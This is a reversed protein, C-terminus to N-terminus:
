RRASHSHTGVATGEESQLPVRLTVTTGFGPTSAISLTGGARQARERMIELGYHGGSARDLLAFGRGDDAVTVTLWGDAAACAVTVRRAQAHKYVNALAEQVIRIVQVEAAPPVPPEADPLRAEVELNHTRGFEQLYDALYGVVGGAARQKLNLLARRVEAYAGQLAEQVDILWTELDAPGAQPLRLRIAEVKMHAFTLTQALGDHMERALRDREELVAVREIERYLRTNELAVAVQAAVSELLRVHRDEWDMPRRFGILLAGTVRDGLLLPVTLVGRLEVALLDPCTAGAGEGPRLPAAGTLDAGAAGQWQATVTGPDALGVLALDAGFVARAREALENLDREAGPLGTLSRSLAYLALAERREAETQGLLREVQAELARKRTMDRLIVAVGDPVGRRGPLPSFSAAVPVQRGGSAVVTMELYPIGQGTTLVRRAPCDAAGNPPGLAGPVARGALSGRAAGLLLEAAPNAHSIRGRGDVLLIADTSSRVLAELQQEQRLLWRFLLRTLVAAGLVLAASTLVMSVSGPLSHDLWQHRAFEVALVGFAAVATVARELNRLKM